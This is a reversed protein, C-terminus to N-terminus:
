CKVLSNNKWFRVSMVSYSRKNEFELSYFGTTNIHQGFDEIGRLSVHNFITQFSCFQNCGPNSDLNLSLVLWAICVTLTSPGWDLDSFLDQHNTFAGVETWLAQLVSLNSCHRTFLGQLSINTGLRVNAPTTGGGTRELYEEYFQDKPGIDVLVANEFLPQEKELEMATLIGRVEHKIIGTVKGKKGLHEFRWHQDKQLHAKSLYHRVIERTRKSFM